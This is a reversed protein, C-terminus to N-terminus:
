ALLDVGGRARARRSEMGVEPVAVALSDLSRRESWYPVPGDQGQGGAAGSGGSGVQVELRASEFGGQRFADQLQAMNREFASKAEDSEVIIRGSINNDALQLEIKVGGLSDPHLRLRITGQDGDKLILHANQVIDGNWTAKLQETLVSTFDRAPAAQTQAFSSDPAQGLGDGLRGNGIAKSPDLDLSVERLAKDQGPRGPGVAAAETAAEEPKARHAARLDTVNLRVDKPDSGPLAAIDKAPSKEPQAGEDEAKAPKAEAKANRNGKLAALLAAAGQSPDEAKPGEKPKELRAALDLGEIAKAKNSKSTGLLAKIPDLNESARKGQGPEAEALQVGAQGAQGQAQHSPGAKLKAGLSALGPRVNSNKDKKAQVAGNKPSALAAVQQSLLDAFSGEGAGAEAKGTKPSSDAKAAAEGARAPNSKRPRVEDPDAARRAENNGPRGSAKPRAEARDPNKPPGTLAPDPNRNPGLAQAQVLTIARRGDAM